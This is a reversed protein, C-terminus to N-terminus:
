VVLKCIHLPRGWPVGRFFKVCIDLLQLGFITLRRARCPPAADANLERSIASAAGGHPMFWHARRCGHAADAVPVESSSGGGVSSPLPPLEHILRSKLSSVHLLHDADVRAFGAASDNVSRHSPPSCAM